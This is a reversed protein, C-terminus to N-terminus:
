PKPVVAEADEEVVDAGSQMRGISHEREPEGLGERAHQADGGTACEIPESDLSDECRARRTGSYEHSAPSATRSGSGNRNSARLLGCTSGPMM